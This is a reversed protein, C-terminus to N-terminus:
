GDTGCDNECPVTGDATEGKAESFFFAYILVVVAGISICCDAFNFVPFDFWKYYHIFDVVYGNVIRDILNGIGGAFIMLLGATALRSHAFWRKILVFLVFLLMISTGVTVIWRQNQLMGWAIGHNEVYTFELVGDWLSIASAGVPALHRVAALKTLQDIVILVATIAGTILWYVFRIGERRVNFSAAERKLFLRRQM